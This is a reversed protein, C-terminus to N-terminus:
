ANDKPKFCSFWMEHSKIGFQEMVNDAFKCGNRDKCLLCCERKKLTEELEVIRNSQKTIIDGLDLTENVLKQSEIVLKECEKNFEELEAIAEEFEKIDVDIEISQKKTLASCAKILLLTRKREKLIELAKSM